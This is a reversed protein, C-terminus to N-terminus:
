EGGPGAAILAPQEAGAARRPRRLSARLEPLTAEPASPDVPLCRLVARERRLWGELQLMEDVTERSIPGDPQPAGFAGRLLRELREVRAPLRIRQQEVLRGARIIFLERCDPQTSPAVVLLNRGAVAQLRRQRGVLRELHRIRDRLLAAEEFRLAEALEDRRAALRDLLDSARGELFDLAQGVAQQYAPGVEPKVCPGLCKKLELLPCASMGPRLPERCRRLGLCDQLVEAAAEAQSARRLPGFATLGAEGAERGVEFRPFPDGLDVQLFTYSRWNRGVVNAEPLYHKILKSELFLAELESGTPIAEVDVVRPLRRRLRPQDQGDGRLHARVRGRVHRSKGVYLVQGEADKLLYVGPGDTLTQVVAEDVGRRPRGALQQRQLRLVAPLDRLGAREALRVLELLLRATAEADARARHRGETAIGFHETLAKLSYSRLGPALRRALRMTCLLETELRQGGRAFGQKLFAHDFSANHAVLVRGRLRTAVAPLVEAWRPQGALLRDDIGTLRTIFAPIPVGPDVLSDFVEVVQQGDVLVVAIETVRDYVASAGTTEVDVVAFRGALLAPGAM